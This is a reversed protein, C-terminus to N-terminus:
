DECLLADEADRHKLVEEMEDVTILEFGYGDDGHSLAIIGGIINSASQTSIRAKEKKLLVRFHETTDDIYKALEYSIVAMEMERKKFILKQKRAPLEVFKKSMLPGSGLGEKLKAAYELQSRIYNLRGRRRQREANLENRKIVYRFIQIMNENM